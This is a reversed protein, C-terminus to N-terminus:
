VCMGNPSRVCIIDLPNTDVRATSTHNSCGHELEIIVVSTLPVHCGLMIVDIDFSVLSTVLSTHMASIHGSLVAHCQPIAILCELKWFGNQLQLRWPKLRCTGHQIERGHEPHRGAVILWVCFTAHICVSAFFASEFIRLISRCVYDLFCRRRM